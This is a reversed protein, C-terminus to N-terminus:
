DSEREAESRLQSGGRGKSGDSCNLPNIPGPIFGRPSDESTRGKRGKGERSISSATAAPLEM